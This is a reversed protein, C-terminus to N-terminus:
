DEEPAVTLKLNNMQASLKIQCSLRSTPTLNELISLLEQEEENAPVLLNTCSSDIIVHCTACACNGGCIAQVGLENDRLAEMLTIDTEATLNHNDGSLDNVNLVISM